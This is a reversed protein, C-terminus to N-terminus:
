AVKRLRPRGPGRKAAGNMSAAEHKKPKNKSGLPRGRRKEAPQGNMPVIHYGMSGIARNLRAVIDREKEAVHKKEKMIESFSELAKMLDPTRM